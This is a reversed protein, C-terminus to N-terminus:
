DGFTVLLAGMSLAFTALGVTAIMEFQPGCLVALSFLVGGGVGGITGTVMLGMEIKDRM